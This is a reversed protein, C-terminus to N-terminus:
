GDNEAKKKRTRKKVTPKEEGVVSETKDVDPKTFLAGRKGYPNSKKRDKLKM